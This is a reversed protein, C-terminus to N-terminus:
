TGPSEEILQGSSETSNDSSKKKSAEDPQADQMEKMGSIEQIVTLMERKETQPVDDLMEQTLDPCFIMIQRDLVANQEPNLAHAAAPDGSEKAKKLREELNTAEIISINLEDLLPKTITRVRITLPEGSDDDTYPIFEFSGAYRKGGFTRM